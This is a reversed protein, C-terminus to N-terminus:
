AQARRQEMKKLLASLAAQHRKTEQDNAQIARREAESWYTTLYAEPVSPGILERLQDAELGGLRRIGGFFEGEETSAAYACAYPRRHPQPNLHLPNLLVEPRIASAVMGFSPAVDDELDDTIAGIHSCVGCAVIAVLSGVPFDPMDDREIRPRYRTREFQEAGLNVNAAFIGSPLDNATTIVFVPFAARGSSDANAATNDTATNRNSSEM